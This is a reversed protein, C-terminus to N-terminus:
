YFSPEGDPRTKFRKHVWLYQEPQQRIEAELLANIRTADEVDDGAHVGVARHGPVAAQVPENRGSHLHLSGQLLPAVGARLKVSDYFAAFTANSDPGWAAATISGKQGMKSAPFSWM